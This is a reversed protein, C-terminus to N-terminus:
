GAVRGAVAMSGQEACVGQGGHAGCCAHQQRTPGVPGLVWVDGAGLSVRRPVALRARAFQTPPVRKHAAVPRSQSRVSRTM